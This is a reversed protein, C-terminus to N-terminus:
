DPATVVCVVDHTITLRQLTPLGFEGSGLFVIKM